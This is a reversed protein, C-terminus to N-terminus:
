KMMMTFAAASLSSGQITLLKKLLLGGRKM